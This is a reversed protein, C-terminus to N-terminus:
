MLDNRGFSLDEEHKLPAELLELQEILHAGLHVLFLLLGTLDHLRKSAMDMKAPFRDDFSRQASPLWRRDRALHVTQLCGDQLAALAL